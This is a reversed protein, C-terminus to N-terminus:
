KAATGVTLLAKFNEIHRKKWVGELNGVQFEIQKNAAAFTSLTDRDVRFVVEDALVRTRSAIKVPKGGDIIVLFDIDGNFCFGSHCTDSFEFFFDNVDTEVTRGNITFGADVRLPAYDTYIVLSQDKFKDYEAKLWKPVKIQGFTAASATLLVLLSALLLKKM